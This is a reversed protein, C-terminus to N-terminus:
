TSNNPTIVQANDKDTISKVQFYGISSFYNDKELKNEDWRPLSKDHKLPLDPTDKAKRGISYKVNKFIIWEITRHDVQKVNNPANAKVDVIVSRGLNNDSEILHGVLECEEGEVLEKALKKLLDDKKISAPKISSLKEEISKADVKKKFKVKFITDGCTELIESLDTMGCKIVQNFHDASWMDRVLIDKSILWGGGHQNTVTVKNGDIDSVKLYSICSFFQEPELKKPNWLPKSNKAATRKSASGKGGKGGGGVAARLIFSASDVFIKDIEGASKSQSAHALDTIQLSKHNEQMAKIMKNCQENLKICTFAISKSEFEKMLPEIELGHPDGNPYSDYGDCYKKGHCPADFIHFVQKQSDPLWAQDLCKRLGGVVDEPFDGGGIAQVKSIFDQVRPIDESFPLISFRQQDCHDRYGIFTVRVKLNGDCSKVVNQVIQQLTKKARDIWSYMSSTCDLLLGLDLVKAASSTAKTGKKVQTKKADARKAKAPEKKIDKTSKAGKKAAPAKDKTSTRSSAKAM